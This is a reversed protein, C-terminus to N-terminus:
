VRMSVLYRQGTSARGRKEGVFFSRHVHIHELCMTHVHIQVLFTQARAFFLASELWVFM